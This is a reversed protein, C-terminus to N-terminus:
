YKIRSSFRKSPLEIFRFVWYSCFISFLYAFLLSLVKTPLALNLHSVYNLVLLGTLSHFLYLSYSIDGLFKLVVPRFDPFFRIALYPFISFFLTALGHFFCIEICSLILLLLHELEGVIKSKLLFLAIGVMFIPTLFPFFNHFPLFPGAFIFLYFLLRWPSRQKSILPFLAGLILYYQFEIALTWYVPRIWQVGHVFPVLYGIHLAIQKLSPTTDIGNYFPGSLRVSAHVVALLLSILYPPELRVLRKMVFRPYKSLVYGSHYMSWPIVFGSIVFFVQVGYHGFSFVDLVWKTSVFGVVTCIFHFSVVSLSAFARLSDLVPIHKQVTNKM